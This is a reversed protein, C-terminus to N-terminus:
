TLAQFNWLFIIATRLHKPFFGSWKKRVAAIERGQHKFLFTWFKWIPSAVEMIVLGQHNEVDFRKTLFSFRKQIAGLFRGEKDKVEIRSFFWRFPHHAVMYIQRDPTYFHVDFKRWHGLSQRLLFGLIGKSQEAAFAVPKGDADLIEYKNRTEYGIWEGIERSQHVLLHTHSKLNESPNTM